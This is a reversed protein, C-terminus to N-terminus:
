GRHIRHLVAKLNGFADGFAYAKPTEIGCLIQSVVNIRLMITHKEPPLKSLINAPMLFRPGDAFIHGTKDHVLDQLM